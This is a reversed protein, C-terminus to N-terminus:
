KEPRQEKRGTTAADKLQAILTERAAGVGKYVAVERPMTELARVIRGAIDSEECVDRLLHNSVRIGFVITDTCPLKYLVQRELRIWTSDLTESGDMKKLGRSSHHNLETDASLGWNDREFATEPALKSLFAHIQRGLAANLGPVIAHIEEVPNGLTERLAWGSPFCVAGAAMRYTGHQDPRLLLWDPELALGAAACLREADDVPTFIEGELHFTEVWQAVIKLADADAAAYKWVEDRDESGLWRSREDFITRKPYQEEPAFFAKADGRRLNMPFRFDSDPFLRRWDIPTTSKADVM